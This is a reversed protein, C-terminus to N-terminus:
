SRGAPTCSLFLELFQRANEDWTMPWSWASSRPVWDGARLATALADIDRPPVFVANGQSVERHVPIDSILLPCGVSGAEVLTLNFTELLSMSILASAHEYIWKMRSRDAIQGLYVLQDSYGGAIARHHRVQESTHSGVLVLPVATAARADACRAWGAVVDDVRKHPASSAVSVFYEDPLDDVRTSSEPWAPAGSLIVRLKDGLGPVTERIESALSESIAVVVDARKMALRNAYVKWPPRSPAGEPLRLGAGYYNPNHVTLVIPMRALMPGFNAPCYLVDARKFPLRTQEYAFRGLVSRVPVTEVAGPLAEAQTWPSLLTHYSTSPDVRAFADLQQKLYSAGGGHRLPMANVLVKM